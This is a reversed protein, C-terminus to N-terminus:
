VLKVQGQEDAPGRAFSQGDRISPEFPPTQWLSIPDVPQVDYHGYILVTPKGSAKLWEAYVLPHGQTQLVKVSEMGIQKLQVAAYEAAEAVDNRHEPLTSISPIRLWTKLDELFSQKHASIYTELEPSITM